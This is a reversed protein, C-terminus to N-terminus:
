IKLVLYILNDFQAARWFYLIRSDVNECTSNSPLVCNFNLEIPQIEQIKFKMSKHAVCGFKRFLRAGVCIIM